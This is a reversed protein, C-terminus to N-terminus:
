MRRNLGYSELFSKKSNFEPSIRTIAEKGGRKYLLEYNSVLFSKAQTSELLFCAEKSLMLIISISDADVKKPPKIVTSRVSFNEGLQKLLFFTRLNGICSYQAPGNKEKKEYVVLPSQMAALKLAEPTLCSPDRLMTPYAMLARRVLPELDRSIEIKSIPIKRYSIEELM